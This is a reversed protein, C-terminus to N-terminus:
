VGGRAWRNENLSVSGQSNHYFDYIYMMCVYKFPKHHQDISLLHIDYSRVPSLDVNTWTDPLLGNVSGFEIGGSSMVLSWDIKGTDNWYIVFYM